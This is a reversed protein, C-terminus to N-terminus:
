SLGYHALVLYIHIVIWIRVQFGMLIATSWAPRDNAGYEFKTKGDNEKDSMALFCFTRALNKRMQKQCPALLQFHQRCM